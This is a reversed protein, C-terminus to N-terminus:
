NRWSRLRRKGTKCMQSYKKKKRARAARRRDAMGRGTTETYYKHMMMYSMLGDRQENKIKVQSEDECKEILVTYTDRKFKAWDQDSIM